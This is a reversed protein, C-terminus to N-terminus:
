SKFGPRLLAWPTPHEACESIPCPRAIGNGFGVTVVVHSRDIRQRIATDLDDAGCNVSWLSIVGTSLNSGPLSMISAFTPLHNTLQCLVAFHIMRVYASRQVGVRRKVANPSIPISPFGR